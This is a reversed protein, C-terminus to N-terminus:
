IKAATPLGFGVVRRRKTHLAPLAAHGNKGKNKYKAIAEKPQLVEVAKIEIQNYYPICEVEIGNVLFLPTKNKKYFQPSQFIMNNTIVKENNTIVFDVM